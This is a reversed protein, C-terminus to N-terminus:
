ECVITNYQSLYKEILPRVQEWDLGGLGCGVKPLAVTLTARSRRRGMYLALDMLGSEIWELRSPDRWHNKTTMLLICKGCDVHTDTVYIYGPEMHNHHKRYFDAHWPYRESWQRALGAGPVGVCNVPIVIIDTRVNWISDKVYTIM